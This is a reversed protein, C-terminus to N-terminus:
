GNKISDEWGRFCMNGELYAEKEIQQLYDDENVNTTNIKGQGLRGELNQMHHIMEHSFSRMVDKPHRNMVYLVLEKNTPDYYATKGFFDQSETLDRKIKIEPLPTIKMGKNMMYELLSGMYPTYDFAIPHQRKNTIVIRDQQFDLEFNDLPIVEKLENFLHVLEARDKSPIASTAAIPTGSSGEDLPQVQKKKKMVIIRGSGKDSKFTLNADKRFYGPLRNSKNDTLSNYVVHYDKGQPNDMSAIGVYDPQESEIFDLIIKYM